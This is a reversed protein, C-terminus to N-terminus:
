KVGLPLEDAGYTPVGSHRDDDILKPRDSESSAIRVAAGGVGQVKGRTRVVIQRSCKSDNNGSTRTILPAILLTIMFSSSDLNEFPFSFRPEQCPVIRRPTCRCLCHPSCATSFFTALHFAPNERLPAALVM